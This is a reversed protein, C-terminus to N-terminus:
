DNPEVETLVIVSGCSRAAIVVDGSKTVVVKCPTPPREFEREEVEILEGNVKIVGRSIRIKNEGVTVELGSIIQFEEDKEEGLPISGIPPIGLNESAPPTPVEPITPSGTPSQWQTYQTRPNQLQLLALRQYHLLSIKERQISRILEEYRRKQSFLDHISLAEEIKDGENRIIEILEM